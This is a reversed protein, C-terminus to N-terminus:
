KVGASVTPVIWAVPCAWVGASETRVTVCPLDSGSLPAGDVVTVGTEIVVGSMEEMDTAWWEGARFRVTDGINVGM